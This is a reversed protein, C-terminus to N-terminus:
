TLVSLQYIKTHEFYNDMHTACVNTELVLKENIFVPEQCQKLRFLTIFM